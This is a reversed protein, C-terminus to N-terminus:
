YKHIANQLHLYAHESSFWLRATVLTNQLLCAVKWNQEPNHSKYKEQLNWTCLWGLPVSFFVASCLNLLLTFQCPANFCFPM